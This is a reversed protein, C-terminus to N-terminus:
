NKIISFMLGWVKYISYLGEIVLNYLGVSVIKFVFWVLGGLICISDRLYEVLLM